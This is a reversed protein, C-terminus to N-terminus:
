RLPTLDRRRPLQEGGGVVSGARGHVDDVLDVAEVRV